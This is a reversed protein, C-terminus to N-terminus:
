EGYTNRNYEGITKNSIEYYLVFICLEFIEDFHSNVDNYFWKYKDLTKNIEPHRLLQSYEKIKGITSQSSYKKLTPELLDILNHLMNKRNEVDNNRSGLYKYITKKIDPSSKEAVYEAEPNTKIIEVICKTRDIMKMKYGISKLSGLVLEITQNYLINDSYRNREKASIFFIHSIIECYTLFEDMIQEKISININQYQNNSSFYANNSITRTNDDICNDFDTYIKILETSRHFFESLVYKVTTYSECETESIFKNIKLFEAIPNSSYENIKSFISKHEEM